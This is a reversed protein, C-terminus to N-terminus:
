LIRWSQLVWKADHWHIDADIYGPQIETDDYRPKTDVDVQQSPTDIDVTNPQSDVNDHDPLTSIHGYKFNVDVCAPNTDFFPIVIM